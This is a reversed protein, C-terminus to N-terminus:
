TGHSFLWEKYADDPMVAAEVHHYSVTAEPSPDAGAANMEEDTYVTLQM